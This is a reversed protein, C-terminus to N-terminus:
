YIATEQYKPVGAMILEGVVRENSDFSCSWKRKYGADKEVWTLELEGKKPNEFHLGYIREGMVESLGIEGLVAKITEAQEKAM